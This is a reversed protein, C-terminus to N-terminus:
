DVHTPEEPNTFPKASEILETAVALIQAFGSDDMRPEGASENWLMMESMVAQCHHRIVEAHEVLRDVVAM